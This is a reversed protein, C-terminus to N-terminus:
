ILSLEFWFSVGNEVNAVGYDERLGTMIAKVISLGIGSGGYARTRAKDVKYFKDWVREMDELPIQSGTNFVTVRAKNEIKEIIIRIEKEEGNVYHVANSFYNMIVEEIKFEDGWVYLTEPSDIVVSVWSDKLLVGANGVYNRVLAVLDFREMTAHQYGNELENLTMLNKVMRNMREAEDSIVELYYNVSEPDDTIGERLGEAYGQILAIPTKLEHSVNAIFEKRQEDIAERKEIDQQLEINVTKLESITQKLSESLSNMNKGLVYIENNDTGTYKAEFDLAKIKESLAALQLIPTSIKGSYIWAIMGGFIIAIIGLVSMFDRSVAASEKVSEMPTTVLFMYGNDLYGWMEMTNVRNRNDAITHIIYSEERVLEDIVTYIGTDYLILKNQLEKSDMSFNYIITHLNLIERKLVICKLNNIECRHNMFNRFGEGAVEEAKSYHKNLFEYTEILSHKKNNSYVRKLFLVNALICILITIAILLITTTAFQQRISRKKM